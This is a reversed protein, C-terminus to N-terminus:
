LYGKNRLTYTISGVEDLMKAEEKKLKLVHKEIEDSELFKFKEYERMANTLEVKRNQELLQNQSLRWQEVNLAARYREKYLQVQRMQSITGSKPTTVSHLEEKISNITLRNERIANRAQALLTEAKQMVSKKIRVIATFKSTM